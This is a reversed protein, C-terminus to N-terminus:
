EDKEEEPLQEESGAILSPSPSHAPSDVEDVSMKMYVNFLSKDEPNYLRMIHEFDVTLDEHSHSRKRDMQYFICRNCIACFFFNNCSDLLVDFQDRSVNTLELMSYYRVTATHPPFDYDCHMHYAKKNEPDWYFYTHTTTKTDFIINHWKLKMINYMRRTTETCFWRTISVTKGFDREPILKKIDSSLLVFPYSFRINRDTYVDMENNVIKTVLKLKDLLNEAEYRAIDLQVSLDQEEIDLLYLAMMYEEMCFEGNIRAIHFEYELQSRATQGKQLLSCMFNRAKEEEDILHKLCSRHAQSGNTAINCVCCKSDAMGALIRATHRATDLLRRLGREFWNEKYVLGKIYGRV